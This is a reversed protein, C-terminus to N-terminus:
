PEEAWGAWWAESCGDACELMTYADGLVVELDRGALPITATQGSWLAVEGDTWTFTAQYYELGEADVVCAEETVLDIVVEPELVSDEVGRELVFLPGVDDSLLIASGSSYGYWAFAAFFDLESGPLILDASLDDVAGSLDWGFTWTEGAEDVIRVQHEQAGCRGFGEISESGPIAALGAGVETVLGTGSVALPDDYGYPGPM